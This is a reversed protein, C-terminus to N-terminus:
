KGAKEQYLRLARLSPKFALTPFPLRGRCDAGMPGSHTEHTVKGRKARGGPIWSVETSTNVWESGLTAVEDRSTKAQGLSQNTDRNQFIWRAEPSPNQKM